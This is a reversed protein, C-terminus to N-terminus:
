SSSGKRMLLCNRGSCRPNRRPAACDPKTVLRCLNQYGTRSAVLVPLVSKDELTLEAGVLARVGHEKACRAPPALRLTWRSRVARAGASWAPSRHVRSGGSRHAVCSVSPAAPTLEIYTMAARLVNEVSPRLLLLSHLPRQKPFIKAEKLFAEFNVSEQAGRIAELMAPFIRQGNHLLEIKNGTVPLPDALAHASPFFEADRVTFEHDLYYEVTERRVLLICLIAAGLLFTVFANVWIGTRTKFWTKEPLRQM